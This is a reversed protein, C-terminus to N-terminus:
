QQETHCLLDTVFSYDNNLRTLHVQQGVKSTLKHQSIITVTHTIGDANEIECDYFRYKMVDMVLNACYMNHSICLYGVIGFFILFQLVEDWCTFDFAFLPLIYSLLFEVSLAKQEKAAKITQKPAHESHLAKLQRLLIYMSISVGLFIGVVVSYESVLNQTESCISRIEIFLVSIWLPLFSLFYLSYPFLKYM